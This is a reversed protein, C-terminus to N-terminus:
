LQYVHLLHQNHSGKRETLTVVSEAGLDKFPFARSAFRGHFRQYLLPHLKALAVPSLYAYIKTAADLDAEFLDGKIFTLNTLGFHKQRWRAYRILLPNLEIGVYRAERHRQACWLLFAGDGSGLEFVTDTDNIGLADAIKPFAYRPTRVFPIGAIDSLIQVFGRLIFLSAIGLLALQLLLVIALTATESM